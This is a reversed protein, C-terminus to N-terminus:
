VAHVFTILQRYLIILSGISQNYLLFDTLEKRKLIQNLDQKFYQARINLYSIVLLIYYIYIM